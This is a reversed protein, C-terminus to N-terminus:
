RNVMETLVDNSDKESPRELVMETKRFFSVQM